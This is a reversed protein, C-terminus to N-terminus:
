SSAPCTQSEGIEVPSSPSSANAKCTRGRGPELAALGAVSGLEAVIGETEQLLWMFHNLDHETVLVMENVVPLMAEVAEPIAVRAGTDASATDISRQRDFSHKM